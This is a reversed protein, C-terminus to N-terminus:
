EQRITKHVCSHRSCQEHPFTSSLTKPKIFNDKWETLLIIFIGRDIYQTFYLTDYYWKQINLYPLTTLLLIGHNSTASASCYWRSLDDATLYKVQCHLHMQLWFKIIQSQVQVGTCGRSSNKAITMVLLTIIVCKTYVFTVCVLFSLYNQWVL